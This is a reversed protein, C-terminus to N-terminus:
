KTTLLRFAYLGGLGPLLNMRKRRLVRFCGELAADITRWNSVHGSVTRRAESDTELVKNMLGAARRLFTRGDLKEMLEFFLSGELPFGIVIRAGEKAVRRIERCAVDLAQIHEFTSLSVIADFTGDRYPLTLLDGCALGVGDLRRNGVIRRAFGVSVAHRDLAEVRRSFRALTPLFYGIGCGADLLTESPQNGLLSMVIRLRKRFLHRSIPNPHFYALACSEMLQLYARDGVKQGEVLAIGEGWDAKSPFEVEM